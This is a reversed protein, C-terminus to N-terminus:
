SIIFFRVNMSQQSLIRDFKDQFITYLEGFARKIVNKLDRKMFKIEVKLEHCIRYTRQRAASQSMFHVPRKAHMVHDLLLCNQSLDTQTSQGPQGNNFVTQLHILGRM